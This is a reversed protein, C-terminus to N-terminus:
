RVELLALPLEPSDLAPSLDDSLTPPLILTGLAQSQVTGM